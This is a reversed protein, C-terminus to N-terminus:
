IIATTSFQLALYAVLNYSTGMVAAVPHSSTNVLGDDKVTMPMVVNIAKGKSKSAHVRKVYDVDSQTLPCYRLPDPFNNPFTASIHGTCFHHCKLCGKSSFLLNHKAATLKPLTETHLHSSSTTMQANYKWSTEMLVNKARM